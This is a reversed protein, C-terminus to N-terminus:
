KGEECLVGQWGEACQCDFRDPGDSCTAGNQCPDSFCEDPELFVPINDDIELTIAIIIFNCSNCFNLLTM